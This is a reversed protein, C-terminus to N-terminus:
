DFIPLFLTKKKIQTSSFQTTKSARICTHIRTNWHTSKLIVVKSVGCTYIVHNRKQLCFSFNIHTRAHVCVCAYIFHIYSADSVYAFVPYMRTNATSHISITSTHAHPKKMHIKNDSILQNYKNVIIKTHARTHSEVINYQRILNRLTHLLYWCARIM